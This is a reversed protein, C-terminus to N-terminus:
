ETLRMLNQGASIGLETTPNKDVLKQWADKASLTDGKSAFIIGLNYLAFEDEPDIRSAEELHSIAKGLSGSNAYMEALVIRIRGDDPQLEIYSEYYESAEEFRGIMGYMSGLELFAHFDAPNNEIRENLEELKQMVPAMADEDDTINGRQVPMGSPTTPLKPITSGPKKMLQIFLLSIIPIAILMAIVGKRTRKTDITTVRKKRAKAQHREPRIADRGSSVEAGCSVCFNAGLPVEEGCTSCFRKTSDVTTLSEGCSVCFKASEKNEASCNSCKRM